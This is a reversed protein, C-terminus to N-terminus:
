RYQMRSRYEQALRELFPEADPTEADAIKLKAALRRAVERAMKRRVQPALQARRGLFAEILQFDDPALQAVDYGVGFAVPKQAWDEQIKNALPQEHVVVTGAVYDGLRKNSKSLLASLIGVGYFGPFADITRMLNRIVSEFVTIPRGSEKIVRLRFRRKGPTQGNWISEFFTFYGFQILFFFIIGIAALWVNKRHSPKGPIEILMGIIVLVVGAIVQILSDLALALFRSGVGALPYELPILEPTEITLKDVDM